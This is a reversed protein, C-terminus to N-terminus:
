LTMVKPLISIISKYLKGHFLICYNHTKYLKCYFNHLESKNTGLKWIIKKSVQNSSTPRTPPSSTHRPRWAARPQRSTTRHNSRCCPTAPDPTARTRRTPVRAARVSARPATRATTELCLVQWVCNEAHNAAYLFLPSASKFYSHRRSLPLCCTRGAQWALQRFGSNSVCRTQQCHTAIFLYLLDSVKARELSPTLFRWSRSLSLSIGVVLFLSCILVCACAALEGPAFTRM